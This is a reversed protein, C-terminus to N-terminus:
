SQTSECTQHPQLQSDERTPSLRCRRTNTGRPYAACLEKSGQPRPSSPPTVVTAVTRELEWLRHSCLPEVISTSPHIPRLAPGRTGGRNAHQCLLVAPQRQPPRRGPPLPTNHTYSVCSLVTQLQSGDPRRNRPRRHSLVFAPVSATHASVHVRPSPNQLPKPWKGRPTPPGSSPCGRYPQPNVHWPYTQVWPEKHNRHAASSRPSAAQRQQTM